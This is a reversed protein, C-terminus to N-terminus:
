VNDANPNATMVIWDGYANRMRGREQFGARRYVAIAPANNPQVELRVEHIARSALYQMGHEVLAGAAGAGRAAPAVAINLLQADGTTRYESASGVFIMKNWLQGFLASWRLGYRGTLARLAWVLARGSTLAVRQLRHVSSTFLAYGVLDGGAHAGLFGGPELNRAFTWVDVMADPKPPNGYLRRANEAFGDFFIRVASDIEGAAIPAVTVPPNL